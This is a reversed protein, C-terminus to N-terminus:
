KLGRNRVKEAFRQVSEPLSEDGAERAKSASVLESPQPLLDQPKANLAAAMKYLQDILLRQRGLEMNTLSTRSMSIADALETQTLGNAQRKEKIKKGLAAHLDDENMAFVGLQV